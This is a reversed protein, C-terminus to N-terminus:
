VFSLCLFLAVKLCCGGSDIRKDFLCLWKSRFLNQSFFILLCLFFCIFVGGLYILLLTMFSVVFIIGKEDKQVGDAPSAHYSEVHHDHSQQEQQQQQQQQSQQLLQQQQPLQQQQQQLLQQQQQKCTIDSVITAQDTMVM